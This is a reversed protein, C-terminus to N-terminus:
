SAQSLDGAARRQEVTILEQQNEQWCCNQDVPKGVLALTPVGPDQDQQRQDEVAIPVHPEQRQHEGRDQQVPAGGVNKGLGLPM